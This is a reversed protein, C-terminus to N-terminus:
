SRRYTRHYPESSARQDNRRGFVPPDIIIRPQIVYRHSAMKYEPGGVYTQFPGPYYHRWYTFGIMVRCDFPLNLIWQKHKTTTSMSM